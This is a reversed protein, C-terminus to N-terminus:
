LRLLWYAQCIKPFDLSHASWAKAMARQIFLLQVLVGRGYEYLYALANTINDYQYGDLSYSNNLVDVNTSYAYLFADELQDIDVYEWHGDALIRIPVISCEPAIGVVSYTGGKSDIPPNPMDNNHRAFIAGAVAMGHGEYKGNPSPDSDGDRADYGQLFRNTDLDEHYEMGMDLIAVKVDQDGTTIQWCEHNYNEYDITKKINYQYDYYEDIIEYSDPIIRVLFNPHCFQVYEKEYLDNCLDVIFSATEGTAQLVYENGFVTNTDIVELSNHEILSDILTQSAGPAFMCIFEDLIFIPITDVFLVVPHVFDISEQGGLSAYISDYTYSGQINFLGFGKQEAFITDFEMEPYSSKIYNFGQDPPISDFKLLIRTTDIQLYIESGGSYYFLSDVSAAMNHGMVLLCIASVM